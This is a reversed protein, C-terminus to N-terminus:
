FLISVRCKHAGRGYPHRACVVWGTHYCGNVVWQSILCHICPLAVCPHLMVETVSQLHGVVWVGGFQHGPGKEFAPLAVSAQSPTRGRLPTSSLSAYLFGGWLYLISHSLDSLRASHHYFWVGPVDDLLSFCHLVWHVAFVSPNARPCLGSCWCCKYHLRTLGLSAEMRQCAHVLRRARARCRPRARACCRRTM